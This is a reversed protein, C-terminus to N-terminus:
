GPQTPQGLSQAQRKARDVPINKPQAHGRMKLWHKGARKAPQHMAHRHIQNRARISREHDSGRLALVTGTRHRSTGDILQQTVSLHQHWRDVLELQDLHGSPSTGSRGIVRRKETANASRSSLTVSIVNRAEDDGGSEKTM